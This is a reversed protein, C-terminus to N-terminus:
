KSKRLLKDIEKAAQELGFKEAVQTVVTLVQAPSTTYPFTIQLEREDQVAWSARVAYNMPMGLEEFMDTIKRPVGRRDNHKGYVKVWTNGNNLPVGYVKSIEARGKLVIELQEKIQSYIDNEM